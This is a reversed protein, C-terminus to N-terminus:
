NEMGWDSHCTCNPDKSVTGDCCVIRGARCGCIGKHGKCCDMPMGQALDLRQRTGMRCPPPMGVEATMDHAATSGAHPAEAQSPLPLLATLAFLLTPVLGLRTRM